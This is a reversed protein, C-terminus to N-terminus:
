LRISRITDRFSIAEGHRQRSFVRMLLRFAVRLSDRFSGMVLSQYFYKFISRDNRAALYDLIIRKPIKPKLQALVFGPLELLTIEQTKKLGYYVISKIGYKQARSIIKEWDVKKEKVLYFIDYVPKLGSLFDYLVYHLCIYLIHDEASLTKVSLDGLSFDIARDWFEDTLDIIGKFREYQCLDWHIDVYVKDKNVFTADLGSDKRWLSSVDSYGLSGFILRAKGLDGKKILLDIDSMPRFGPDEYVSFALYLGKLALFPLKESDFGQIVQRAKELLIINRGANLPFSQKDVLKNLQWLGPQLVKLDLGSARLENEIAQFSCFFHHFIREKGTSLPSIESIFADGPESLIKDRLFFRLVSRLIDVLNAPSYFHRKRRIGISLYLSGQPKLSRMVRRIAELRLGKAPISSYVGGSFYCYDFQERYDLRTASLTEFDISLGEKAALGSAAEIMKASIDIAKVQYGLRALAMSERGAGCGVDLIYGLAKMPGSVLFKEFDDLGLSAEGVFYRVEEDRSYKVATDKLLRASPKFFFSNILPM